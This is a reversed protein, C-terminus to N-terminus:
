DDHRRSLALGAMLRGVLQADTAGTYDGLANWLGVIASLLFSGTTEADELSSVALAGDENSRFAVLAFQRADRLWEVAAARTQDQMALAVAYNESAEVDM